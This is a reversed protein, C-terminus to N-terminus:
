RSPTWSELNKMAQELGEDSQRALMLLNKGPEGPVASRVARYALEDACFLKNAKMHLRCERRQASKEQDHDM